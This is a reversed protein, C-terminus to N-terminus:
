KGKLADAAGEAAAAGAEKADAGAKEAGEVAETAADGAKQENSKEGCGVFTFVSVLFLSAIFKKM